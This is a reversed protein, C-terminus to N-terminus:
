DAPRLDIQGTELDARVVQVVLSRGVEFVQRSRRGRLSWARRDFDWRDEPLEELPVLGEALVDVLEVFIGFREVGRVVGRLVQGLHKRLYLIQKYRVSLREADQAVIERRNAQRCAAEIRRADLDPESLLCRKLLRHTVLDPYRRIPSTFHAYREFGLGFHGLNEASYQAKMMSRLVLEQLLTQRDEGKFREVLEQWESVRSLDPCEEVGMHKIVERFRELKEGSPAEHIRYPCNRRNRHLVDAVARNALLMFEEILFDADRGAVARVSLPSGEADLDFVPEPLTFNLGGRELRCRKLVRWLRDMHYLSKLVPDDVALPETRAEASERGGFGDLIEQVQGYTFRRASRILSPTFRTSELTGAPSVRLFGSFCARDEGEVLSCIDGSLRQPLMPVAEGVLYVSSGRLLAERDLAGGEPVCRSVDAIHVGLEWGGGDLEAVSVADDFDRADPPDITFITEGRLDLRQPGPAPPQSDVTEAERLVAPPFEEPLNYAAKVRSHLVAPSLPDGLAQLVRVELRRSFQDPVEPPLLEAMVTSGDVCSEPPEGVVAVTGEFRLSDPLLVWGRMGRKLLGILRRLRREVLKVVRGERPFGPRGPSLEVEVVDDQLFRGTQSRQISVRESSDEPTLYARGRPSLNL